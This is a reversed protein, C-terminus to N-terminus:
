SPTLTAANKDEEAQKIVTWFNAPGFIDCVAQICDSMPLLEVVDRRTLLLTETM